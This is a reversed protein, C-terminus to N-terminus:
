RGLGLKERSDLFIEECKKCYKYGKHDTDSIGKSFYMVCRDNDCHVLGFTHGLEHVVETFIRKLFVDEEVLPNKDVNSKLRCISVIAVDSRAEGFVFNLHTVYIDVDTIGLVRIADKPIDKEMERLIITSHYQNKQPSFAREFPQIPELIKCSFRLYEKIFEALKIMLDQDLKGIPKLYIYM